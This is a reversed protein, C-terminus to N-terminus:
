QASNKSLGTQQFILGASSEYSIDLLSCLPETIFHKVRSWSAAPELRVLTLTTDELLACKDKSLVPEVWSSKDRCLQFVTSQSM